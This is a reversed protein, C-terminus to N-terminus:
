SNNLKLMCCLAYIDLNSVKDVGSIKKIRKGLEREMDKTEGKEEKSQIM